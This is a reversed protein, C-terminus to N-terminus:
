IHRQHERIMITIVEGLQMDDLSMENTSINTEDELYERVALVPDIPIGCPQNKLAAEVDLDRVSADLIVSIMKLYELAVKEEIEYKHTMYKLNKRSLDKKRQRLFGLRDLM